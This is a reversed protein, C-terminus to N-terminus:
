PRSILPESGPNYPIVNVLARELPRCFEAVGKADEPRDNIGPLLCYNIGFVFNRRRPYALLAAQVEKLPYKRNVPM